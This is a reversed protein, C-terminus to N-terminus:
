FLKPLTSNKTDENIKNGGDFLKNFDEISIFLQYEDFSFSKLVASKIVKFDFHKKLFNIYKKEYLKNNILCLKNSCHIQFISKNSYSNSQNKNVIIQNKIGSIIKSDVIKNNDKKNDSSWYSRILFIIIFLFLFFGLALIVFKKLINQSQQNAGSGYSDFVNKIIPLKVTGSKSKQSCRSDTYQFYIMKNRFLKLSSPRAKYFFESFSKYKSNVLALNQTILYIQQHLHRHYSLWWVLVANQKDLFNHCEDLIILVGYLGLEKAIPEIESDTAKAKYMTYLQTLSSFFLDWDLNKVKNDDFKDLKIENINTLAFEVDNFLLTKDQIQKKNKGFNIYLSLIGRYTKGSGPVGTIFEVM